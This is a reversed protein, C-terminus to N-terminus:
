SWCALSMSKRFRSCYRKNRKLIAPVITHVHAYFIDEKTQCLLHLMDNEVSISM